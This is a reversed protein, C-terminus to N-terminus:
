REHPRPQDFPRALAVIGGEGLEDVEVAVQAIADGVPDKAIRFPRLVGDVLQTLSVRNDALSQETLARTLVTTLVLAGVGLILASAILFLRLLTLSRESASRLSRTQAALLRM